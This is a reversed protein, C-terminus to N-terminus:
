SRGAGILESVSRDSRGAGIGSRDAGICESWSRYVGVLESVSRDRRDSRRAGILESVVGICESWSRYWESVM